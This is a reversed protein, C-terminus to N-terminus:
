GKNITVNYGLDKFMKTFQKVTTYTWCEISCCVKGHSHGQVTYPKVFRKILSRM